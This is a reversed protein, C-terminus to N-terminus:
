GTMSNCIDMTMGKMKLQIVLGPGIIGALQCM